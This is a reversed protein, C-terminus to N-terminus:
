QRVERKIPPEGILTEECKEHRFGGHSLLYM